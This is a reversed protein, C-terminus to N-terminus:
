LRLRKVAWRTVGTTRRDGPTDDFLWIFVIVTYVLNLRTLSWGDTKGGGAVCAMMVRATRQMRLLAQVPHVVDFLMVRRVFAKLDSNQAFRTLIVDTMDLASEADFAAKMSADSIRSIFWIADKAGRPFVTRWRRPDSFVTQSAEDLARRNWGWRATVGVLAQALAVHDPPSEIARWDM